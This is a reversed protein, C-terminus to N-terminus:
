VALEGVHSTQPWSFRAVWRLYAVDDAELPYHNLIADVNWDRNPSMVEIGHIAGNNEVDVILLDDDPDPWRQHLGDTRPEDTTFYLYLADAEPDYKSVIVQFTWDGARRAARIHM